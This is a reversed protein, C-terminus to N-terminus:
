EKMSGLGLTVCVGWCSEGTTDLEGMAFVSITELVLPVFILAPPFRFFASTMWSVLSSSSGGKFRRFSDTSGEVGVRGYWADIFCLGETALCNAVPEALFQVIGFKAAVM